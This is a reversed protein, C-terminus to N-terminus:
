RSVGETNTESLKRTKGKTDLDGTWRVHTAHHSTCPRLSRSKWTSWDVQDTLSFVVKGQQVTTIVTCTQRQERLKKARRDM